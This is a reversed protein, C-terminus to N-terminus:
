DFSNFGNNYPPFHFKSYYVLWYIFSGLAAFFVVKNAINQEVDNGFVIGVFFCEITCIVIFVLSTDHIENGTPRM